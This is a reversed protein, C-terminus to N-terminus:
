AFRAIFNRGFIRAVSVRLKVGRPRKVTRQDIVWDEPVPSPIVAQLDGLKLLRQFKPRDREPDVFFAKWSERMEPIALRDRDIFFSWEDIPCDAGKELEKDLSISYYDRNLAFVGWNALELWKVSQKPVKLKWIKWENIRRHDDRKISNDVLWANLLVDYAIAFTPWCWLIHAWGTEDRIWDYAEQFSFDISLSPMQVIDFDVVHTSFVAWSEPM